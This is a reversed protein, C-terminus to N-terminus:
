ISAIFSRELLRVGLRIAEFFLFSDYTFLLHSVLGGKLFHLGYLKGEREAKAILCLLGKTCFLFLFLPCLIEKDWGMVLHLIIAFMEM